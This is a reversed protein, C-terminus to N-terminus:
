CVFVVFGLVMLAALTANIYLSSNLSKISDNLEPIADTNAEYFSYEDITTNINYKALVNTAMIMVITLGKSIIIFM